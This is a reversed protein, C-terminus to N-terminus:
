LKFYETNLKVELGALLVGIQASLEEIQERRKAIKEAIEQNHATAEYVDSYRLTVKTHTTGWPKVDYVFRVSEDSLNISTVRGPRLEQGSVRLAQIPFTYQQKSLKEAQAEVEEQTKGSGVCEGDSNLLKFERGQSDYVIKYGKVEGIETKM